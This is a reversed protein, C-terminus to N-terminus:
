CAQTYGLGETKVPSLIPFYKSVSPQFTESFFSKMLIEEERNRNRRLDSIIKGFGCLVM